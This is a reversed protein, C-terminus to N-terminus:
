RSLGQSLKVTAAEVVIAKGQPNYSIGKVQGVEPIKNFDLCVHKVIRKGVQQYVTSKDTHLIVGAYETTKVAQSSTYL